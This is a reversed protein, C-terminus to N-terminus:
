IKRLTVTERLKLGLKKVMERAREETKTDLLAQPTHADRGLVVQCGEEAAVEWFAPNPYHRGEGLGLLNLELPVGCSNAERCLRRMQRAYIQRSGVYRMMDPHAFYTYLGTNMAEITQDCYRELKGADETPAGASHENVENGLVHQGLILYDVPQDRLVPLMEPLLAPYYELELGIPIQIRGSFEQRLGLLVQCYGPLQEVSMRFGSVYGDPFVYPGHDSFGLTKLGIKLANEVYERETGSAHNCRWTHTHYNAIM